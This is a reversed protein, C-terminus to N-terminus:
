FCVLDKFCLGGELKAMCLRKIEVLGTSGGIMVIGEGGFVRLSLNCSMVYLPLSKSCVQAVAKILVERDGASFLKGKWM